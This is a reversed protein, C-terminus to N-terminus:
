LENGRGCANACTYYPSAAMIVPVKLNPQATDVPRVIDVAIRDLAGDGDSDVSSRVWVVERIAGAYSYVPITTNGSVHKPPPEARATSPLAVAGTLVIAAAAVLRSIQSIGTM